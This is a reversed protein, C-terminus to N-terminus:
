IKCDWKKIWARMASPSCSRVLPPKINYRDISYRVLNSLSLIIKRPSVSKDKQPFWTESKLLLPRGTPM